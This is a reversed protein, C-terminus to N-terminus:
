EQKREKSFARLLPAGEEGLEQKTHHRGAGAFARWSLFSAVSNRGHEELQQRASAPSDKGMGWNRVRVATYVTAEGGRM